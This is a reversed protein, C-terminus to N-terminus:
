CCSILGKRAASCPTNSMVICKTKKYSKKINLNEMKEHFKKGESYLTSFKLIPNFIEIQPLFTSNPLGFELFM